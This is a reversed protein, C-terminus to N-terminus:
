AEPTAPGPAAAAQETAAEAPAEVFKTQVLVAIVKDESV